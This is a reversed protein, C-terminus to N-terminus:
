EQAWLVGLYTAKMYVRFRRWAPVAEALLRHYIECTAADSTSRLLPAM